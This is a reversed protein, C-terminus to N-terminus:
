NLKHAPINCGLTGIDLSAIDDPNSQKSFQIQLGNSGDDFVSLGRQNMATEYYTLLRGVIQGAMAAGQGSRVAIGMLFGLVITLAALSDSIDNGSAAVALIRGALAQSPNPADEVHGPTNLITRSSVFSLAELIVEPKTDAPLSAQIARAIAEVAADRELTGSNECGGNGKSNDGM